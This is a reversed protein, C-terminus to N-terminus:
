MTRTPASSVEFDNRLADHAVKLQTLIAQIGCDTPNVKNIKELNEEFNERIEDSLEQKLLHNILWKSSELRNSTIHKRLIFEIISFDTSALKNLCTQKEARFYVTETINFQAFSGYIISLFDEYTEITITDEDEENEDEDELPIEIDLAKDNDIKVIYCAEEREQLGFQTSHVDTDLFFKSLVCLDALGIIPKLAGTSTRYLYQGNQQLVISRKCDDWTQFAALGHSSVHYNEGEKVIEIDTSVGMFYQYIESMAKEVEARYLGERMLLYWTDTYIANPARSSEKEKATYHAHGVTPDSGKMEQIDCYDQFSKYHSLILPTRPSEDPKFLTRQLSNSYSTTTAYKMERAGLTQHILALQSILTATEGALEVGHQLCLAKYKDTSLRLHKLNANSIQTTVDCLAKLIANQLEYCSEDSYHNDPLLKETIIKFINAFLPLTEQHATNTKLSELQYAALPKYKWM